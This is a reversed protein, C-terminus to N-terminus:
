ENTDLEEEVETELELEEEMADAVPAVEKIAKAAERVDVAGTVVDAILRTHYELMRAISANISEIDKKIRACKTRLDQVISDQEQRPPLAIMLRRLSSAYIHVIIDGRAMLVKQDIAGKSNLFYSLYSSSAVQQRLIILDGGAYASEEGIYTLCKGIDERTEGSGTFMLDGRKLLEAKSAAEVSTFKQLSATEIDYTTYIDGYLIAPVGEETIDARALGRGKLFQGFQSLRKVEWHEPVEGLWEVGSPKLKVNPDLGHTVARQIIAQKQEQLRAILTRKTRIYRKVKADLAHLYRVILHQEDPPAVPVAIAGFKDTYLRNFGSGIGKSANAFQEVVLPCRFLQQLFYPHHEDLVKFVAYDPSVMGRQKALGFLGNWAQMRNMVIQEAECIKYGVHTKASPAKGGLDSQPVLGKSKSLSMLVEKGEKSREEMERVLTKIRQVEWHEPVQQLWPVGAPKYAPYPKLTTSSM